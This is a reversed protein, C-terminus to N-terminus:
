TNFSILHRGSILAPTGSILSGALSERASLLHGSSMFKIGHHLPLDRTHSAVSIFVIPSYYMQVDDSFGTAAASSALLRLAILFKNKGDV